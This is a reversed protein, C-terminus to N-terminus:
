NGNCTSRIPEWVDVNGGVRSEPLFRFGSPMVGLILRSGRGFPVSRGVVSPDGGFRRQWFEHSLIMVLPGDPRDEEPTFARGLWPAVGLTPFLSATAQAFNVQEPGGQVTLIRTYASFAALGDFTKSQAQYARYHSVGIFEDGRFINTVLVLRQPGPYSMQQLRLLWTYGTGENLRLIQESVQEICRAIEYGHQPGLADLVKLVMLDLTGQLVESKQSEPHKGKSM